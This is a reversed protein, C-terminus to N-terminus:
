SNEMMLREWCEIMLHIKQTTVPRRHALQNRAHRCHYLLPYDSLRQNLREELIFRVDTYELEDFDNYTGNRGNDLGKAILPAILGEVLSLADPRIEELWPLIESLQARWLSKRASQDAGTAIEHLVHLRSVGGMQEKMGDSWKQSHARSGLSSAMRSLLDFPDMLQENTAESLKDAFDRDFRALERVISEFLLFPGPGPRNAMLASAYAQMDSKSVCGRWEAFECIDEPIPPKPGGVFPKPVDLVFRVRRKGQKPQKKKLLNLRGMLTAVYRVAEKPTDEGEEGRLWLVTSRLSPEQVFEYMAPHTELRLKHAVTAEVNLGRRFPVDILRLSTHNNIRSAIAVDLDHPTHPPRMLLVGKGRELTGVLRDM